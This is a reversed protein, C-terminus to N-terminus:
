RRGELQKEVERRRKERRDWEDLDLPLYWSLRYPSDPRQQLGECIERRIQVNQEADEPFSATQWRAYGELFSECLEEWSRFTEQMIKGVECSRRVMEERGCWGAIYSMGLLQMARCLEWARGAQDRCRRFGPGRSMYEVTELLEKQRRIEWSDLLTERTLKQSAEDKPRGGFHIPGKELADDWAMKGAAEKVQVFFQGWIAYTGALWRELDNRPLSADREEQEKRERRNLRGVGYVTLFLLAIALCVTHCRGKFQSETLATLHNGAMDAFCDTRSLELAEAQALEEASLEWPKWTGIAYRYLYGEQGDEYLLAANEYNSRVAVREGSELTVIYYLGDGIWASETDSYDLRHELITFRELTQLDGISRAVPTSDLAPSGIGGPGLDKRDVYVNWLPDALLLFLLAMVLGAMQLLHRGEKLDRFLKKM